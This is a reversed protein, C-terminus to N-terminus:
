AEWQVHVTSILMARDLSQALVHCAYLGGAHDTTSPVMEAVLLRELAGDDVGRGLPRGCPFRDLASYCKVCRTRLM